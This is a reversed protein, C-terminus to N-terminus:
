FGNFGREYKCDDRYSPPVVDNYTGGCKECKGRIFGVMEECNICYGTKIKTNKM